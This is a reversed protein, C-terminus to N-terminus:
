VKYLFKEFVKSFENIISDFFVAKDKHSQSVGNKNAISESVHLQRNQELLEYFHQIQAIIRIHDDSM